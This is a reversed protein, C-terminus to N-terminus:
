SKIYIKLFHCSTRHPLAVGGLLLNSTLSCMLHCKKQKKVMLMLRVGSDVDAEKNHPSNFQLSQTIHTFSRRTKTKLATRGCVAQLQIDM